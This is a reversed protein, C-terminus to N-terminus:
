RAAEPSALAAFAAAQAEARDRKMEFHWKWMEYIAPYVV